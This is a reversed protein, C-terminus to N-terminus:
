YHPLVEANIGIITLHNIPLCADAVILMENAMLMKLQFQCALTVFRLESAVDAELASAHPETLFR